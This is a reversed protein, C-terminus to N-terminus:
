SVLEFSPEGSLRLVWNGDLLRCETQSYILCLGSNLTLVLGKIPGYGNLSV